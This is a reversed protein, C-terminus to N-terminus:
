ESIQSVKTTPKLSGLTTFFAVDVAFPLRSTSLGTNNIHKNFIISFYLLEIFLCGTFSGSCLTLKYQLHFSNAHVEVECSYM